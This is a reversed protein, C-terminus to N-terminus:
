KPDEEDEDPETEDCSKIDDRGCEPCKKVDDLVSGVIFKDEPAVYDCWSCAWLGTTKNQEVKVLLDAVSLSGLDAPELFNAQLAEAIVCADRVSDCAKSHKTLYDVPYNGDIVSVTAKGYGDAVVVARDSDAVYIDAMFVVEGRYNLRLKERLAGAERDLARLRDLQAQNVTQENAM